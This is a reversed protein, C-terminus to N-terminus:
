LVSLFLRFMHVQGFQALYTCKLIWQTSRDTLHRKTMLLLTSPTRHLTWSSGVPVVVKTYITTKQYSAPAPSNTPLLLTAQIPFYNNSNKYQSILLSFKWLLGSIKFNYTSVLGVIDVESSFIACRKLLM